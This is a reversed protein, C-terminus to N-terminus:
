SCTGPFCVINLSLRSLRLLKASCAKRHRRGEAALTCILRHRPWMVFSNSFFPECVISTLAYSQIRIYMARVRVPSDLSTCGLTGDMANQGNDVCKQKVQSSITRARERFTYDIIITRGKALRGIGNGIRTVHIIICVICSIRSSGEVKEHYHLQTRDRIRKELHDILM